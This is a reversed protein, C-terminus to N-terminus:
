LTNVLDRSSCPGQQADCVSQAAMNNVSVEPLHYGWYTDTSKLWVETLTFCVICRKQALMCYPVSIGFQMLIIQCQRM